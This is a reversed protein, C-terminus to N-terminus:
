NVGSIFGYPSYPIGVDTFAQFLHVRKLAWHTRNLENFRSRSSLGFAQANENLRQLPFDCIKEFAIRIGGDQVQIDTLLGWCAMHDEDTHGYDRSETTFIAPYTKLTEIASVDLSAFRAKLEPNTYETLAREPEMHLFGRELEDEQYTVFLHYADTSLQQQGGAQSRAVTRTQTPPLLMFVPANVTNAHAIQVGNAGHQNFTAGTPPQSPQPTTLDQGTM